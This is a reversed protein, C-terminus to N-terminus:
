NVLYLQYVISDPYKPYGKVLQVAKAILESFKHKVNSSLHLIQLNAYSREM